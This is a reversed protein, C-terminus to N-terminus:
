LVNATGKDHYEPSGFTFHLALEHRHRFGQGLGMHGKDWVLLNQFRVGASEIAPQISTVMRWDCFVVLSGTPRVVRVAEFAIARLLFVLGATGMNDGIFWGMRRATDSRLGQYKAATRSAENVGGSCYPPDTVIADVSADGMGRM